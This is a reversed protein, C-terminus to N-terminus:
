LDNPPANEIESIISIIDHISNEKFEDIIYKKMKDSKNFKYKKLIKIDLQINKNNPFKESLEMSVETADYYANDSKNVHTINDIRRLLSKLIQLDIM